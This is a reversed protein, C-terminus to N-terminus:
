KNLKRLKKATQEEVLSRTGAEAAAVEGEAMLQETKKRVAEEYARQAAQRNLESLQEESKINIATGLIGQVIGMPIGYEVAMSIAQETGVKKQLDKLAIVLAGREKIDKMLDQMIASREAPLLEKYLPEVKKKIVETARASKFLKDEIQGTLKAITKEIAPVGASESIAKLGKGIRRVFPLGPVVGLATATTADALAGPISEEEEPQSMYSEIGTALGGGIGAGLLGGGVAGIPGGAAGIAAGLKAGGYAGLAGAGGTTIASGVTKGITYEIPKEAEQKQRLQEKGFIEDEMGLTLGQLLGSRIAEGTGTPPYAAMREEETLEPEIEVTFGLSEAKEKKQQVDAIDVMKEQVIEGAENIARMKVKQSM